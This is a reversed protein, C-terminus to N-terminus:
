ANKKEREVLSEIRSCCDEIENDSHQSTPMYVQILVTDKKHGKLRLMALRNNIYKVKMILNKVQAMMGNKGEGSYLLKYDDSQLEGNERWKM